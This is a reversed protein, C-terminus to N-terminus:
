ATKLKLKFYTINSRLNRTKRKDTKPAVISPVQPRMCRLCSCWRQATDRERNCLIKFAQPLTHPPPTLSCVWTHSRLHAHALTRKRLNSSLNLLLDEDEVKKSVPDGGRHESGLQGTLAWPNEQRDRGVLLAPIIVCAVKDSKAYIQIWSRICAYCTSQQRLWRGAGEIFRRQKEQPELPFCGAEGLRM